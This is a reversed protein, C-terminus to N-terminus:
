LGGVLIDLDQVWIDFSIIAEHTKRAKVVKPYIVRENEVSAPNHRISFPPKQRITSPAVFPPQVRVQFIDGSTLVEVM